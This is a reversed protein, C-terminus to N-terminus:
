RAQIPCVTLLPMLLFVQNMRIGIHLFWMQAIRGNSYPRYMKMGSVWGCKKEPMQLKFCVPKLIASLSIRFSQYFGCKVLSM